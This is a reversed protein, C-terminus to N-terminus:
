FAPALDGRDTLLRRDYALEMSFYFALACDRNCFQLTWLLVLLIPRRVYARVRRFQILLGGAVLDSDAQALLRRNFWEKQLRKPDILHEVLAGPQYCAAFGAKRLRRAVDLEENSMLNEEGGIRGLRENFGGVKTLAKHDFAMNCGVVYHDRKIIRPLKGLELQGLYGLLRDHLWTPRAAQWVLTVRGAVLGLNPELAKFQDFITIAWTTPIRVDDDVYAIISFRAAALGLNRAHSLGTKGTQLYRILPHDEFMKATRTAAQQDSSNDIVLIEYNPLLAVDQKELFALTQLLLAPRQYTCVVVCLGTSRALKLNSKM